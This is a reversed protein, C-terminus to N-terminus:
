KRRKQEEWKGPGTDQYTRQRPAREPRACTGLWSLLCACWPFYGPLQAWIWCQLVWSQGAPARPGIEEGEVQCTPIAPRSAALWQRASLYNRVSKIHLLVRSSKESISLTNNKNLQGSKTPTTPKKKSQTDQNKKGADQAKKTNDLLSDPGPMMRPWPLWQLGARYIGPCWGPCAHGYHSATRKCGSHTGSAWCQGWSM